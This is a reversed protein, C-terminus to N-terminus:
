VWTNRIPNAFANRTIKLLHPPDSFFFVKTYMNTAKYVLAETPSHLRFLKRNISAGNATVGLEHIGNCELRDIAQWLLPFLDYGAGSSMPFQAYPFKINTFIGRVMFVMMTKALPRGPSTDSAVAEEM